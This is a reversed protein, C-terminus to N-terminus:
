AAGRQNLPRTCLVRQYIRDIEDEIKRLAELALQKDTQTQCGEHRAAQVALMGVLSLSGNPKPHALELVRGAEQAAQMSITM